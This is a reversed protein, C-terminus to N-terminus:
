PFMATFNAEDATGHHTRRLNSFVESVYLNGFSQQNMGSLHLIESRLLDAHQDAARLAFWHRGKRAGRDVVVLVRPDFLSVRHHERRADDGSVLLRDIAHDIVKEPAFREHNVLVARIRGDVYASVGALFFQLEDDVQHPGFVEDRDMAFVALELQM